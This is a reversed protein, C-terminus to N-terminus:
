RKRLKTFNWKIRCRLHHLQGSSSVALQRDSQPDRNSELRKGFHISASTIERDDATAKEADALEEFTDEPVSAMKELRHAQTRSVGVDKLQEEKSKQVSQGSTRKDTRRGKSKEM